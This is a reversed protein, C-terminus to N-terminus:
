SSSAGPPSRETRTQCSCTACTARRAGARRGISCTARCREIHTAQYGPREQCFKALARAYCRFKMLTAPKLVSAHVTMYEEFSETTLQDIHVIGHYALFEPWRGKLLYHEANALTTASWDLKHHHLLAVVAGEV